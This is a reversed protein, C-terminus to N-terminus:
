YREIVRLIWAYFQQAGPNTSEDLICQWHEVQAELVSKDKAALAQYFSSPDENVGYHTFMDLLDENGRWLDWAKQYEGMIVALNIRIVQSGAVQLSDGAAEYAEVHGELITDLSKYQKCPLQPFAYIYLNALNSYTSEIQQNLNQKLQFDLLAQLQEEAEKIKGASLYINSSNSFLAESAQEPVEPQAQMEEARRNLLQEAEKYRRQLFLLAAEAMYLIWRSREKYYPEYYVAPMDPYQAQYSRLSNLHRSIVNSNKKAMERQFAGRNFATFHYLIRFRPYEKHKRALRKLRQVAQSYQAARYALRDQYLAKQWDSQLDLAKGLREELAQIESLADGRIAQLSRLWLSLAEPLIEFLNQAECEAVLTKLLPIALDYRNQLFLHRIYVLEQAASPLVEVHGILERLLWQVLQQRLKYYRNTLQAFDTQELEEAYIARVAKPSQFAGETEELFGILRQMVPADTFTSQLKTRAQEDLQAYLIWLRENM